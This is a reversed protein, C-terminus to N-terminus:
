RCIDRIMNELLIDDSVKSRRINRDTEAIETIARAVRARDFTRAQRRLKEVFYPHGPVKKGAIVKALKV